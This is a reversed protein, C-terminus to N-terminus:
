VSIGILSCNYTRTIESIIDNWYSYDKKEIYFRIIPLNLESVIVNMFFRETMLALEQNNCISFRSDFLREINFFHELQILSIYTNSRLYEFMLRRNRIDDVSDNTYFVALHDCKAKCQEIIHKMHKFDINNPLVLLGINNFYINNNISERIRAALLFCPAHTFCITSYFDEYSKIYANRLSSSEQLTLLNIIDKLIYNSMIENSDSNCHGPFDLFQVSDKSKEKNFWDKVYVFNPYSKEPLDELVDLLIVMDGSKMPTSLAHIISNLEHNGHIGARNLVRVNIGYHKLKNELLSAVTKDEPVVFGFATCPGYININPYENNEPFKGIRIGSHVHMEDDNSEDMVFCIGNDFRLSSHYARNKLFQYESESRVFLKLYFDDQIIKGFFNREDKNKIENPNLCLLDEYRPLKYFKLFVGNKDCYSVLRKLAFPTIIKNLEQYKISNIKLVKRIRGNYVFDLVIDYKEVISPNLNFDDKCIFDFRLNPVVLRFYEVVTDNAIILVNKYDKMYDYFDSSFLKLYRLALLNKLTGNQYPLLVLSDVEYCLKGNDIVVLFDINPHRKLINIVNDRSLVEKEQFVFDRDITENISSCVFDEFTIVYKLLDNELVYLPRYGNNSFHEAIEEIRPHRNNIVCLDNFFHIQYQLKSEYIM